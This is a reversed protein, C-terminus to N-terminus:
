FLEYYGPVVEEFILHLNLYLENLIQRERDKRTPDGGRKFDPINKSDQYKTLVTKRLMGSGFFVSGPIDDNVGCFITYTVDTKASVSSLGHAVPNRM